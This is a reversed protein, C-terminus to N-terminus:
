YKTKSQWIANCAIFLTRTAKDTPSIRVAVLSQSRSAIPTSEILLEVTTQRVTGAENLLHRACVHLDGCRRAFRKMGNQKPSYVEAVRLSSALPTGGNL